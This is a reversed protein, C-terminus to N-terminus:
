TRTRKWSEIEKKRKLATEIEASPTKQTKKVFGNLLVLSGEHMFFIVRAIGDKINSRVEWLGNGLSKCLPMGIPWNYEVIGIDAGVTKRDLDSLSKIWERVPETGAQTRYFIVQVKKQLKRAL